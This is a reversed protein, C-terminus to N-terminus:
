GKFLFDDCVKWALACREEDFHGFHCEQKPIQMQDALWQYAQNRDLGLVSGVRQWLHKADKRAERLSKDALTGLPLDTAPHLGVFADCPRCLYAYPWDGYSRGRYIESNEVLEVKGGCYRCATPPPMWDKVRRLAHRSVVPLPHPAAIREKQHARPDVPM